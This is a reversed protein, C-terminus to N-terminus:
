LSRSRIIKESAAWKRHLPVSDAPCPRVMSEGLGRYDADGRGMVDLITPFVDAQSYARATDARMAVGSNLIFAPILRESFRPSLQPYKEEHDSVIVIVSRDYVGSRRLHGLFRGLASDFCHLAELYHRDTDEYDGPIVVAAGTPRDYPTHMGITTIQAFFPEPMSDIESAARAFIMSDQAAVPTAAPVVGDVLRDYGYSRTTIAHSWLSKNEGIIEVSPRALAGALSPYAADAYRAVLAEGRLPLLGTNYIFQGDSSRGHGTQTHLEPFFLVTSDSALAMLNPAVLVSEPLRLAKSNLSEVIIFVLNKGVNDHFASDSAAELPAVPRSMINRIEAIDADTLEHSRDFADASVRVLYGPFGYDMLYGKWDTRAKFKEFYASVAHRTDMGGYIAVRRVSLAFQLVLLVALAAVYGAVCRRSLRTYSASWKILLLVLLLPSLLFVVDVPRLSSLAASVVFNNFNGAAFYSSSAICDEFNRFYLVNCLELAALLVFWPLVLWIWRRRLFVAPLFLLMSDALAYLARVPLSMVGDGLVVSYLALLCIFSLALVAIWLRAVSRSM